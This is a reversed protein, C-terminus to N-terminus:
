NLRHLVDFYPGSAEEQQQQMELHYNKVVEVASICAKKQIELLENFAPIQEGFYNKNEAGARYAKDFVEAIHEHTLEQQHTLHNNIAAIFTAWANVTYERGASIVDALTPQMNLPAGTQEDIMPTAQGHEDQRWVKGETVEHYAKYAREIILQEEESLDKFQVPDITESQCAEKVNSFFPM